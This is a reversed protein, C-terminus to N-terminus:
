EVIQITTQLILVLSIIPQLNSWVSNMQYVVSNIWNRSTSNDPLNGTGDSKNFVHVVIRVNKIPTNNVNYQYNSHKNFDTCTNCTSPTPSSSFVECSIQAYLSQQISILLIIIFLRM